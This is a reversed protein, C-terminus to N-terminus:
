CTLHTAKLKFLSVKNRQILSDTIIVEDLSGLYVPYEATCFRCTNSDSVNTANMYLHGYAQYIATGGLQWCDACCLLM